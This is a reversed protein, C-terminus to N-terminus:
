VVMVILAMAAAWLTLGALWTVVIDDIRAAHETPDFSQLM